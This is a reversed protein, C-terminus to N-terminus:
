GQRVFVLKDTDFGLERSWELFRKRVADSHTRFMSWRGLWFSSSSLARVNVLIWPPGSIRGIFQICRASSSASPQGIVFLKFRM